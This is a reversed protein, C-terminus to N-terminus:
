NQHLQKMARKSNKCVQYLHQKLKTKHINSLIRLFHKDLAADLLDNQNDMNNEQQNIVTSTTLDTNNRSIDSNKNINNESKCGTLIVLSFFSAILIKAKKM